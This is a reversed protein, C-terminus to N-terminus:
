DVHRAPASSTQPGLSAAAHKRLTSSYGEEALVQRVSPRRLLRQYHLLCRPPLELEIRDAWFELYFLAADAISFPGVVYDRDKLGLDFQRLGRSVISRGELQVSKQREPDDAYREATFVRTYGQGHVTYVAYNMLELVEAQGNADSPLLGRRPNSAGLWWAISQFDTLSVGDDRVLTPVTGKRNIALYAPKLHDGAMLDVLHAEFSLELEELLIHIGTSCSGPTMYFKMSVEAADDPKRRRQHLACETGVGVMAIPRVM